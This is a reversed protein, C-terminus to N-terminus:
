WQIITTFFAQFFGQLKLDNKARKGGGGGGVGEGLFWFFFHFKSFIIFITPSIM